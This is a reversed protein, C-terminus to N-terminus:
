AHRRIVGGDVVLYTGTIVSAKPSMLFAVAQAVEDDLASQRTESL